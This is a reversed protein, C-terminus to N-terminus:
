RFKNKIETFPFFVHSEVWGFFQLSVKSMMTQRQKRGQSLYAFYFTHSSLIESSRYSKSRQWYIKRSLSARPLPLPRYRKIWRILFLIIVSFPASFILTNNQPNHLKEYKILNITYSCKTSKLVIRPHILSVHIRLKTRLKIRKEKKM